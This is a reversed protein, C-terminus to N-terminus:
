LCSQGKASEKLFGDKINANLPDNKPPENKPFKPTNNIIENAKKIQGEKLHKWDKKLM